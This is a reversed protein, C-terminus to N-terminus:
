FNNVIKFAGNSSKCLLIKLANFLMVQKLTSLKFVIGRCTDDEAIMRQNKLTYSSVRCTIVSTENGVAFPLSGTIRHSKLYHTLECIKVRIKGTEEQIFINIRNYISINFDFSIYLICNYKISIIENSIM